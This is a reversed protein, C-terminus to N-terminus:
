PVFMNPSPTLPIAGLDALANIAIQQARVDVRPQEIGVSDLGWMWQMSGTSFVKAGSAATYRVAHSITPPAGSIYPAISDPNPDCTSEALKVLGNPSFGNNVIADWEFGVLRPLKHGNQLGTNAYYSDNSNFIVFDYGGYVIDEDAVYMVGLLANEPRNNEPGRFLYTPEEPDLALPTKYCVMVRNPEGTSSDEFRVRWYASNSSFFGLNLGTDRAQDVADRMQVSWYEDHGVSLFVKHQLPLQHLQEPNTHVDMNTVYSIDYGQSEMWRIMNHEWRFPDNFEGKRTTTQSFPRDFSVKQAAQGGISNYGYLSYGSGFGIYNNYALFTTFSSQFLVESNSNDDRVVFWVYSQKGGAKETLKIAYLGSTWNSGIVLTHSTEWNCEILKTSPDTITCAPQTTGTLPDISSMLRGGTGGYYGLRYVDMKYGVGQQATSVKIPLTGGRNVSTAGAYGVIEITEASNTIKWDTTGLNQNERTIANSPAVLLQSTITTFGTASATITGAGEVVPTFSVVARGANAAVTAGPSFSGSLGSVSFTVTPTASIDVNGYQDEITANFTVTTNVATTTSAPTLKLEGVEPPASDDAVFLIDRFYNSNNYSSTPLAAPSGFVGNNGDAISRLDGNVVQGSLGNVTSPFHSNINVSVVYTTNAQITLPTPLAEQQWGSATEGTFTVSTLLNGSTSWIRGTHTGNESTARFHRIATIQGGTISRFKMGLEYPTGGDSVNGSSPSQSTFLTSGEGVTPNSSATFNVTGVGVVTASVRNQGVSTGLTLVTSAQGNTNTTSSLTSLSGDGQTIAFSVTTNAQPNDNSDTLRVVLPESLATGATGNQNDGSVKTLTSAASDAAFVVDRFYNSNSYSNIPLVGPSGFVGNNGDAVSRLNGNVIQSALGSHTIPFYGNTNVTVIYTTNSQIPLPADLTQQQWGSSTGGTFTVSTLLTGNTSWIKGTHTGGDTSAKWYRIATLQGPLTAQFKMGLEYLTGGDSADPYTPAQSTFLTSM